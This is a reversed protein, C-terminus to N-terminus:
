GRSTFLITDVSSLYILCRTQTRTGNVWCICTRTGDHQQWVSVKCICTAVNNIM